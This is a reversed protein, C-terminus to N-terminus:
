EGGGGRRTNGRSRPAPPHFIGAIVAFGDASHGLQGGKLIGQVQQFAKVELATMKAAAVTYEALSAAM